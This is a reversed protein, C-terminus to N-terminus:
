LAPDYGAGNCSRKMPDSEVLNGKEDKWGVGPGEFYEKFPKIMFNIISKYIHHMDDYPSLELISHHDNNDQFQIMPYICLYLGHKSIDIRPNKSLAFINPKGFPMPFTFIPPPDNTGFFMSEVRDKGELLINTIDTQFPICSFRVDTCTQSFEKGVFKMLSDRLHEEFLMKNFQNCIVSVLYMRKPIKWYSDLDQHEPNLPDYIYKEKKYFENYVESWTPLEEKAYISLKYVREGNEDTTWPM